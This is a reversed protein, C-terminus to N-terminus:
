PAFLKLKLIFVVECIRYIKLHSYYLLFRKAIPVTYLSFLKFEASEFFHEVADALALIMVCFVDCIFILNLVGCVTESTMPIMLSKQNSNLNYLIQFSEM